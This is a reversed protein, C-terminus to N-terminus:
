APFAPRVQDGGEQEEQHQKVLELKAMELAGLALAVPVSGDYKHVADLVDNVMSAALQIQSENITNM